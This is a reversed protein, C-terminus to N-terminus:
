EKFEYQYQNSERAILILSATYKAEIPLVIESLASSVRQFQDDTGDDKLASIGEVIRSFSAATSAKVFLGVYHSLPQPLKLLVDGVEYDHNKVKEIVEDKNIMDEVFALLDSDIENERIRYNLAVFTVWPSGLEIYKDPEVDAQISRYANVMADYIPRYQEKKIGSNALSRGIMKFVTEANYSKGVFTKMRESMFNYASSFQIRNNGDILVSRHVYKKSGVYHNFLLLSYRAGEQVEPYIRDGEIVSYEEYLASIVDILEDNSSYERDIVAPELADSIDSYLWRNDIRYRINPLDDIVEVLYASKDADEPDQRIARGMAQMYYLKSKSPTAMIVANVKPDDYGESLVQVNVLISRKFEKEKAIFDTRSQSRSNSEGTIYSISEYDKSLSSDRLLSYLDKAHTKTGVYIIIKKFKEKNDGIAKIINKNRNSNNLQELDDENLNDIDYEGGEVNIIHPRLIIGKKVLDPFGISYSEKEFELPLGDHRSPTATLGLVGAKTQEFLPQYSNAAAHHAEDIVILKIRKDESLVAQCASIMEVRIQAGVKIDLENDAIVHAFTSSAQDILELRHAIWLVHDSEPDLIGQVYMQCVSKAATFTKGGGTPIVLLFRGNGEEAFDSVVANVADSQFEDYRAKLDLDSM